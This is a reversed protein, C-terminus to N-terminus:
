KARLAARQERTARESGLVTPMDELQFWAFNDNSLFLPGEWENKPLIRLYTEEENGVMRNARAFVILNEAGSLDIKFKGDADSKTSRLPTPIGDFFKIQYAVARNALFLGMQNPTKKDHMQAVM